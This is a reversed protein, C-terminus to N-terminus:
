TALQLTQIGAHHKEGESDIQKEFNKRKKGKMGERTLLNIFVIYHQWDWGYSIAPTDKRREVTTASRCTWMSPSAKRGGGGWRGRPPRHAIRARKRTAHRATRPKHTGEGETTSPKRKKMNKQINVMEESGLCNQITKKAIRTKFNQFTRTKSGSSSTM